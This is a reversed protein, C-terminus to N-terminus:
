RQWVRHVATRRHSSRHGHSLSLSVHVCAAIPQGRTGHTTSTAFSLEVVMNSEVLYDLCQKLIKDQKLVKEEFVGFFYKLDDVRTPKVIAVYENALATLKETDSARTDVMRNIVNWGEQQTETLPTTFNAPASKSTWEM